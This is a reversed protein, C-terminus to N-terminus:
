SSGPCVSIVGRAEDDTQLSYAKRILKRLTPENDKIWEAATKRYVNYINTFGTNNTIIRRLSTDNATVSVREAVQDLTISNGDISFLRCLAPLKVRKIYTTGSNSSTIWTLRCLDYIDTASLRKNSLYKYTSRVLLCTQRKSEVFDAM